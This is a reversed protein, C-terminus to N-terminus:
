AVARPWWRMLAHTPMQEIVRFGLRLYLRLADQNGHEVHLRMGCQTALARQQAWEILGTGIGQGHSTASLSIDVLLHEPAQTQLYLRGIPEGDREVILFDVDPYHRVYHLHQMAFQQDLFAHLAQEPWGMPAFEVGRLERYLARLWAIDQSRAARVGIGRRQLPAPLAFAGGREAPFSLPATTSALHLRSM